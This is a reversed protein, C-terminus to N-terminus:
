QITEMNWSEVWERGRCCPLLPCITLHDACPQMLAQSSTPLESNSAFQFFSARNSWHPLTGCFPLYIFWRDGFVTPPSRTWSRNSVVSPGAYVCEWLLKPTINGCLFVTEALHTAIWEMLDTLPLKAARVINRLINFCENFSKHQGFCKSNGKWTSILESNWFESCHRVTHLSPLQQFPSNLSLSCCGQYLIYLSYSFYCPLLASLHCLHLTALYSKEPSCSYKCCM